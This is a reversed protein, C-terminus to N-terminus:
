VLVIAAIVAVAAPLVAFLLAKYVFYRIIARTDDPRRRPPPASRDVADM